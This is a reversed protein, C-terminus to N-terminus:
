TTVQNAGNLVRLLEEEIIRRMDAVGEKVTSSQIVIQDQFKGISINVTTPKSGGGAINGAIQNGANGTDGGTNGGTDGWTSLGPISLGSSATLGKVKQLLKEGSDDSVGRQFGKDWAGGIQAAYTKMEALGQAMAGPNMTLAGTIIKGLSRAMNGINMFVTSVTAAVGWLVGRFNEFKIYLIALFTLLAVAGVIAWAFPNMVAMAAEIAMRAREYALIGAVLAKYTVMAAIVPGIFMFYDKVFKAIVMFARGIGALAPTIVNLLVTGLEMGKSIFPEFANFFAIRLDMVKNSMRNIRATLSNANKVAAEGFTSQLEKAFKPLFDEAMVNGLALQKDLEQTTMGMAKAAIQFAGPIREGLQGRLEESQVKGKSMIQGLATFAGKQAETDMTLASAAQSMGLFLDRMPAGALSTGRFSGALVAFGEKAAMANLGLGDTVNKLFTFNNAAEGGSAFRISNELGEVKQMADIASMGFAAIAGVALANRLGGGFASVSNQTERLRKATQMLHKDIRTFAASAAQRIRGMGAEMVRQGGNIKRMIRTMRDQAEFILQVRGTM